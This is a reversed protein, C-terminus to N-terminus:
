GELRGAEWLVDYLDAPIDSVHAPLALWALEGHREVIAQAAPPLSAGFISGDCDLSGFRPEIEARNRRFTLVQLGALHPSAAVAEAAAESLENRSLELWILSSLGAHDALAEIAPDTLGNERLDLGLLGALHPSQAFREYLEPRLNRIAVFLLPAATRLEKGQEIFTAADVTVHEVFGRTFKWDAARGAIPGAWEERGTGLLAASRAYLRALAAPDITHGAYSARALRLQVRILEARERRGAQEEAVAYALRPADALPRALIESLDGSM